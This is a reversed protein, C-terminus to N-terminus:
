TRWGVVSAFRAEPEDTQKSRHHSFFEKAAGTDVPSVVIRGIAVGSGVLQDITFQVLDVSTTGDDQRELYPQWEPQHLQQPNKVRYSSKHIGPGIGVWLEHPLVGFVSELTQITRTILGEDTMRWSQHVIGVARGLHDAILVPLCDATLMVLFINKEGTIAADGVADESADRMNTGRNKATIIRVRPVENTVILCCDDISLGLDGLFRERNRVVSSQPGRAWKFSMNGYSAPSFGHILGPVRTLETLQYPKQHLDAM